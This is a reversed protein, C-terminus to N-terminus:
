FHFSYNNFLTVVTSLSQTSVYGSNYGSANPMSPMYSPYPTNSAGSSQYPPFAQGFNSGGAPYPPFNTAPPYPMYNSGGANPQPMFASISIM